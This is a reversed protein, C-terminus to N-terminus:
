RGAVGKEPLEVKVTDIQEKLEIETKTSRRLNLKKDLEFKGNKRPDQLVTVFIQYDYKGNLYISSFKHRISNVELPFIERDDLISGISRHEKAIQNLRAQTVIEETTKLVSRISDM